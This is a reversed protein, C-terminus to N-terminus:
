FFVHQLFVRDEESHTLLFMAGLGQPNTFFTGERLFMRGGTHLNQSKKSWIIIMKSSILLAIGCVTSIHFRDNLFLSYYQKYSRGQVYAWPSKM